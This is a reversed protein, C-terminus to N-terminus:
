RQARNTHCFRSAMVIFIIFIVPLGALGIVIIAAVLHFMGLSSVGPVVFSVTGFINLIVSDLINLLMTRM